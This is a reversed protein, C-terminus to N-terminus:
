GVYNDNLSNYKKTTSSTDPSTTQALTKTAYQEPNLAYMLEAMISDQEQSSLKDWSGVLSQYIARKSTEDINYTDVAQQLLTSELQKDTAYMNAAASTDAGYRSAAAQVAANREGAETGYQQQLNQNWQNEYNLTPELGKRVSPLYNSMYDQHALSTLTPLMGTRGAKAMARGAGETFKVGQGQNYEDWYMEPNDFTSLYRQENANVMSPAVAAPPTYTTSGPPTYTYNNTLNQGATSYPSPLGLSNARDITEFTPTAPNVTASLSPTSKGDWTPDRFSPDSKTGAMLYDDLYSM